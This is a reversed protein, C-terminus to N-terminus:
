AHCPRFLRPSPRRRRGYVLDLRDRPAASPSAVGRHRRRGQASLRCRPREPTTSRQPTRDIVLLDYAPASILSGDLSTSRPSGLSRLARLTKQNSDRRTESAAFTENVVVILLDVGEPVSSVLKLIGDGEACSPVCLIREYSGLSAALAHEPEAYRELYRPIGSEMTPGRTTLSSGPSIPALAHHGVRAPLLTTLRKEVDTPEFYLRALRVFLGHHRAEARALDLYFSALGPDPLAEGLLRFRECGRAEVIGAILLRDLFYADSGQRLEALLTRVYDDKDDRRLILGRADLLDVVQRFHELEEQALEVMTRVLERRDPYHSVLSLALASAKRECSAHDLLFSDLDSIVAETWGPPTPSSLRLM